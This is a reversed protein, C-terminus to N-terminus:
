EEMWAMFDQGQQISKALDTYRQTQRNNRIAQDLASPTAIIWVHGKARTVATYLLNRQLMSAHAIDLAVIVNRYESGQSKHVTCAYALSLDRLNDAPIHVKRGDFSVALIQNELDAGQVFGIDGNFVNQEYNNKLQMVRDGMRWKRGDLTYSRSQGNLLTQLHENLTQTGLMGKHMPTLIQLDERANPINQTALECIFQLAQTSDELTHVHFHTGNITNPKLGANIRHANEAIDSEGKQRFIRQLKMHPVSSCQLFEKLLNGPGIAPLQDPDGILLLHTNPALAQVLAHMIWTDVMSFEDVIVWSAELPKERNRQFRKTGPEIELLRHLTMAEKSTLESMRKAARGTPAALQVKCDELHLLHLIGKLTTTKGTGPGGTLLYFPESVAQCIGEFQEPAYQFGQEQEFERLAKEWKIRKKTDVKKKQLATRAWQSISDEAKALTHLWIGQGKHVLEERRLMEELALPLNEWAAEQGQLQLLEATQKLLVEPPLYCHGQQMARELAFALGAELRSACDRPIGLQLAIADARLFGIGWVDQALLYPNERLIAETHIGYHKWIKMAIGSSIQHQYLFLLTARSDRQEKWAAIFKHLRVGKFGRLQTLQQPDNDLIFLTQEGFLDVLKQASKPGMGPFLGSSLYPVLAFDSDMTQIQCSTALLQRGFKPHESWEGDFLACEGIQLQPFTGVVVVSDKSDKVQLRLVTWGNSSNRFTVSSVTGQLQM